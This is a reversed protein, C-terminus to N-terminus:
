ENKDGQKEYLKYILTELEFMRAELDEMNKSTPSEKYKGGLKKRIVNGIRSNILVRTLEIAGIAYLTKM